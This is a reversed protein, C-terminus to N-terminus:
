RQIMEEAMAFLDEPNMGNRDYFFYYIDNETWCLFAVDREQVTDSGYTVYNNPQKAWEEEAKSLKYDDPVFKYHDLYYNLEVEGVTKQTAPISKTKPLEELKPSASLVLIQGLENEYYVGLKQFSLVLDGNEDKAKTESIEVSQFHFGNQFAEPIDLRIGTEAIARNMDSYNEYYKCEGSELSRIPLLEAAYATVTLLSILAAAILIRIARKKTKMTKIEKDPTDAEMLYADDVYNLARNLDTAKMFM